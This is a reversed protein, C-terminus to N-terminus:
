AQLVKRTKDFEEQSIEGRARRRHLTDMPVGRGSPIARVPHAVLNRLSRTRM